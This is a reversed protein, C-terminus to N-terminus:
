LLGMAGKSPYSSRLSASHTAETLQPFGRAVEVVRVVVKAVVVKAVVVKAVVWEVVM